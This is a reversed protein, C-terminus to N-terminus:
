AVGRTYTGDRYIVANHLPKASTFDIGWLLCRAPALVNLLSRLTNAQQINILRDTKIRYQDWGAGRLMFGDRKQTNDRIYGSRGESLQATGLGAKELAVKIAHVTGKHRHIEVAEAVTDRKVQESWSEDWEDVSLGWALYGLLNVPCTAPNWLSAIPNPVHAIRSCSADLDREFETSNNPLLNNNM